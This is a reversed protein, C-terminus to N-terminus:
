PAPRHSEQALGTTLIGLKPFNAALWSIVKTRDRSPCATDIVVSTYEAVSGCAMVGDTGFVTDVEYGARMLSQEDRILTAPDYNVYLIHAAAMAPIARRFVSRKHRSAQEKKDTEDRLDDNCYILTGM